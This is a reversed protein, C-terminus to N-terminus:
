INWQIGMMFTEWSNTGWDGGMEGHAPIALCSNQTTRSMEHWESSFSIKQLNVWVVNMLIPTEHSHTKRCLDSCKMWNKAFLINQFLGGVQSGCTLSSHNSFIVKRFLDPCIMCIRVNKTFQCGRSFWLYWGCRFFRAWLVELFVDVHWSYFAEQPGWLWLTASFDLLCM